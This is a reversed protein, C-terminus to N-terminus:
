LLVLYPALWLFAWRLEGLLRILFDSGRLFFFFFFFFFFGGVLNDHHHFVPEFIDALMTQGSVMFYTGTFGGLIRMTTFIRMNPALAMGVSCGCLMFVAAIYANKRGLIRTIPGWIFSSMGMALLVGANTYNIITVTTNFEDSIEPAAPLLSTSSFTIVLTMWSVTFLILCKRWVPLDYLTERLVRNQAAPPAAPTPTPTKREDKSVDPLEVPSLEITTGDNGTALRSEGLGVNMSSSGSDSREERTGDDIKWTNDAVVSEM